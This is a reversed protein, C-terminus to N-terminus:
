ARALIRAKMSMMSLQSTSAAAFASVPGRTQADAQQAFVGITLLLCLSFLLKKM